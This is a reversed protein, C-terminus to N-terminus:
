KIVVKKGDRVYVGKKWQGNDTSRQGKKSSGFPSTSRIRRGQLDYTASPVRLEDNGIRDVSTTEDDMVNLHINASSITTYDAGATALDFYARFAKMKTNGTSFWFQNDSLFLCFDPVVTEAVYTGVFSNYTTKKNRGTGTTEEDRDVIPEEEPSIDVNDLTFETVDSNVKIIYPHNAEIASVSSFNVRINENDDVEAGTFDAMQVDEGFAEKCQAETMAFPLCLTSWQNAKITRKVTVKVDTAAKIANPDTNNEDLFQGADITLTTEVLEQTGYGETVADDGNSLNISLNKVVIPYDGAPANEPLLIKVIAVEGDNGTIEGDGIQANANVYLTGDEQINTAFNDLHTSNTRVTSLQVDPNGNTISFNFVEPLILAFSFGKAEYENKMKISLTYETTGQAVTLPEIYIAHRLTSVDTNGAMVNGCILTMLFSM